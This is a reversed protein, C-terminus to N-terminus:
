VRPPPIPPASDLSDFPAGSPAIWAVVNWEFQWVIASPGPTVAGSTCWLDVMGRCQRALPGFALTIGGSSDDDGDLAVSHADVDHDHDHHACDHDHHACCGGAPADHDDAAALLASEAFQALLQQPPEVGHDHCWAMREAPTFCCCHDWCEAATQCGCAHDQCPFPMGQFKASRRAVPVGVTAVLYAGLAALAVIRRSALGRRHWSIFRM